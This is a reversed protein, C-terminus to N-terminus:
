AYMSGREPCNTQNGNICQGFTTTKKKTAKKFIYIIKFNGLIGCSPMLLGSITCCYLEYTITFWVLELLLVYQPVLWATRLWMKDLPGLFYNCLFWVTYSRLKAIFIWNRKRNLRTYILTWPSESFHSAEFQIIPTFQQLNHIVANFVILVTKQCSCWTLVLGPILKYYNLLWLM